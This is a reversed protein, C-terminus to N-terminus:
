HGHKEKRAQLMEARHRKMHEGQSPLVELNEPNNNLFNGDIHHVVEGPALPRGLKM